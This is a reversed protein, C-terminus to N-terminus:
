NILLNDLNLNHLEWYFLNTNANLQILMSIIECYYDNYSIIM